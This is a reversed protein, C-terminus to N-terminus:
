AFSDNFKDYFYKAREKSNSLELVKKLLNECIDVYDDPFRTLHVKGLSIGLYDAIAQSLEPHASGSYVCIHSSTKM